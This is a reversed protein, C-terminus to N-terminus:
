NELAVGMAKVIQAATWQTTGYEAALKRISKGKKHEQYMATLEDPAFTRKAPRGIQRGKRKANQIGARVRERIMEREFEAVAGLVQYTLRGAPTTTDINQKFSIFDIGLASFEESLALLHKLSRALRDLAWVVVIDVRRKRADHLLESLAPRVEKGGSVAADRYVKTTWGRRSCFELLEHEQTATNQEQTSVRVYIAARKM